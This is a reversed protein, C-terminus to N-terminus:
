PHISIGKVNFGGMKPFKGVVALYQGDSDIGWVGVAGGSM